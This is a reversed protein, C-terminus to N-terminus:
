GADETGNGPDLLAAIASTHGNLEALELPTLGEDTLAEATAGSDLLLSLTSSYGYAAALHAPTWGHPDVANVDAGAELLVPILPNADRAAVVRHLLSGREARVSNPDAGFQCLLRVIEPHGISIALELLTNGDEDVGNAPVGAHIASRVAIPDSREIAEVLAETVGVDKGVPDIWIHRLRERRIPHVPM